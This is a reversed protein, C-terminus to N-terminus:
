FPATIGKSESYNQENLCFVTFLNSNRGCIHAGPKVWEGFLVPETAMTVTLIVDAGVVAEKASSCVQVTGKVSSAFRESNSQKYDWIRVEQFSFMETFVDYHSYSLNGAGLICLVKANAPKLYKTSIASAAATRRTTIVTGDMIAKLSGTVPDFLLMTAQHSPVSPTKRQYYTVLKTTLADDQESYAPMVAFFGGHNEVHITTRVPQIVGGEKGSSFSALARELVPVLAAYSLHKKVHEAGIYLPQHMM